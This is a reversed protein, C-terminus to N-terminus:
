QDTYNLQYHFDESCRLGILQMNVSWINQELKWLKETWSSENQTINFEIEKWSYTDEVIVEITAKSRTTPHSCTITEIPYQVNSGSDYPPIEKHCGINLMIYFLYKKM